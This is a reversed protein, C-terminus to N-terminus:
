YIRDDIIEWCPVILLFNPRNNDLPLGEVYISENVHIKMNEVYSLLGGLKSPLSSMETYVKM